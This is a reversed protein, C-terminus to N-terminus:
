RAGVGDLIDFRSAPEDLEPLGAIWADQRLTVGRLHFLCGVVWIAFALIAQGNLASASLGTVLAAACLITGILAMARPKTLKM